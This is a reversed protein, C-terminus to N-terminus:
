GARRRRCWCRRTPSRGAGRGGRLGGSGHGAGQARTADRALVTVRPRAPWRRPSLVVARAAGGAGLVVVRQGALAVGAEALARTFGPADTNIGHFGNAARVLTNVAGCRRALEDVSALADRVAAKWPVTVNAGLYGDDWLAALTADLSGPPTDRREYTADLGLARFAAAMMDPSRSHAVPHGILAIRATVDRTRHPHRHRRARRPAAAPPHHRGAGRHQRRHAGAGRAAGRRLGAGPDEAPVDRRAEGGRPGARPRPSRAGQALRARAPGPPRRPAPRQAPATPAPRAAAPRRPPRPRRPRTTLRVRPHSGQLSVDLQALARRRAVLRRRLAQEAREILEDLRQRWAALARRPDRPQLKHLRLNLAAIKGSLASRLRRRFDELRDREDDLEPTCLTAAATPTAARLDAVLDALTHDVQHGVASVVPVRCTAIARAVREDNFAALDESAGGGRGVILVDLSRIRQVLAIARAIQAPAEAGQVLTPSVVVRVPWRRFLEKLIDQLAAGSPSTVVGIVRPFRPLPRKREDDFLGEARLKEKLAELAAAAAGAGAAASADGVFQFTGRPNYITPKGRLLIKEGVTMKAKARALSGKWMVCALRADEREDKLEFYLHGSAVLKASSIEGEIWIPAAFRQELTDRATRNFESVSLPRPATTVPRLVDNMPAGSSYVVDPRSPSHRTV